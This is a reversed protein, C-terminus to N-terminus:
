GRPAAARRLRDNIAEGLGEEPIPVVAIANPGIADLARLHAFLNAAAEVLSGRPSLDLARVAREFGKPEAGGFTLLAEGRQVDEANLRLRSRPAYHSALMGPAAPVADTVAEALPQGLMREIDIRPVAGLRLLRPADICEVITSELGVPTPGGDLVLDIAGGLDALVHDATTPSVHGSRNASPAAVPKGFATLLRQALPHAPVRVAVTELGARALDCVACDARAPVVLTLPGPWFASALRDAADTFTGLRAAATADSVHAIL